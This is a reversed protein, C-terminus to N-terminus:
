KENLLAKAESGMTTIGPFVADYAYLVSKILENEWISGVVKGRGPYFHWGDSPLFGYQQSGSVSSHPFQSVHMDPYLDAIRDLMVIAADAYKQEGTYLYADSLDKIATKIMGGNYWLAWHAYYAVFTYPKGYATTDDPDYNYGMGDDVGWDPDNIQKATVSNALAPNATIQDKVNNVLNGTGGAAILTDNHRKALDPDFEGYENLGGEYYSKFDNTPFQIHCSPCEIKWDVDTTSFIYSYNGYTTIEDECALCGDLQNVGYSRPINQSPIMSWLEDLTFNDLLTDAKEAAADKEEEAWAYQTINQRATAVKEPTYYTSEGKAVDIASIPVQTSATLSGLSAEVQVTGAALTNLLTLGNASSIDGLSTDASTVVAEATVDQTDGSSFIGSVKLVIQDGVYVSNTLAKVEISTLDNICATVDVNNVTQEMGYLNYAFSMTVTAESHFQLYTKGNETSVTVADSDEPTVTLRGAPLVANRGDSMT